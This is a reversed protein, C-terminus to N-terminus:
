GAEMLRQVAQVFDDGRASYSEYMDFSACGPALLVTTGPRAAATAIAVAETMSEARRVPVVAAKELEAAAEGLTVLETLTPATALDSLDLGKNRGGAILVVSPFSAVSALAAHPNTAKSDDVYTIGARSAVVRRRHPAPQYGLAAAVIGEESAGMRDATVLAAAVDVVFAADRRVLGDLPIAIDDWSLHGDAPGLGGEPLSSGSVPVRRSRGSSVRLAVEPDDAGFVLLDDPAQNEIIRLKAAAYAEFSGHWDLHDPAINLIVAVEPQFESITALQFSSAEVVIVDPQRDWLAVDSVALGINGAAVAHVGASDLMAATLETVTTKGNTGTIAAVRGDLHRAGFELESMLPVGHEFTDLCPGSRISFGPSAVVTDIGDLLDRDWEGNVVSIGDALLESGRGPTGDFVVVQHGVSRALRAAARGSVAAGLVLVRM